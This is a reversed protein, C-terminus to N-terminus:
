VRRRDQIINLVFIKRSRADGEGLWTSERWQPRAQKVLATLRARAM